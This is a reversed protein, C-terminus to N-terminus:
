LGYSQLPLRSADLRRYANGLLSEGGIYYVMVWPLFLATLVLFGIASRRAYKKVEPDNQGRLEPWFLWVNVAWLWPLLAFGGYYIRRSLKRAKETPMTYSDITDVTPNDM